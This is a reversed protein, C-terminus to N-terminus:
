EDNEEPTSALASALGIHDSVKLKPIAVSATGVTSTHTFFRSFDKNKLLNNWSFYENERQISRVIELIEILIEKQSRKKPENKSPKEKIITQLEEELKPWSTIFADKLTEPDLSREGTKELVTNLTYLLKLIDEKDFKTNQFDSLPSEIDQYDIDLLFTCVHSEISMKSLAGAEFLIWNEEINEKNLCIIGVKSEELQKTIEQNWRKGKDIDSSMWPESAQIVQKLFKKIVEATNKSREGSWSIFVKM